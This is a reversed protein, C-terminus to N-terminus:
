AAQSYNLFGMRLGDKESKHVITEVRRANEAPIFEDGCQTCILAPVNLVVITRQGGDTNFVLSTTGSEMIGGCLPCKM